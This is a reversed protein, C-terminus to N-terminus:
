DAEYRIGALERITDLTEMILLTDAHTMVPSEKLGNQLCETVHRAEHWFGIGKEKKVKILKGKDNMAKHLLLRSSPEYFRSTLRLYNKTGNVLVETPLNTAFSSFLQAMAGNKYMFQVSCQEDIGEPTPSMRALIEDPKGLISLAMFVNYIGIDLLSGGGLAPDSLRPPADAQLRFGFNVLVSKVEGIKDQQILEQMKKYHPLFKTWVGEMLFVNNQRATEIMEKAQRNNIAFPKECLVAKKHNLCLLTTEHHHSHPTAVYIVDIEPNTVLEQYSGHAYKAAYKKAFKKANAISRSAVATLEAGKVWPMDSAFKGAIRGCGLIGWRIPQKKM